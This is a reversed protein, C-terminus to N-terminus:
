TPTSWRASSISPTTSSSRRWPILSWFSRSKGTKTTSATIPIPSCLDSFSVPERESKVFDFSFDNSFILKDTRYVLNINGGTVGKESGKMIGKQDSYNLGVGYLMAESGGDIYVSHSHNLVSRLPSRFGTPIWM